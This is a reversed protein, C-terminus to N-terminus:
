RLLGTGDDKKLLIKVVQNAFAANIQLRQNTSLHFSILYSFFFVPLHYNIKHVSPSPMRIITGLASLIFVSFTPINFKWGDTKTDLVWLGPWPIQPQIVKLRALQM